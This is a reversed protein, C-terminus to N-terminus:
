EWATRAPFRSKVEPWIASSGSVWCTTGPPMASCALLDEGVEFGDEFGAAAAEGLDDFGGDEELVEVVEGGHVGDVGLM